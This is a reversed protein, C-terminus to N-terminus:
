TKKLYLTLITVSEDFRTLKGTTKSVQVENIDMEDKRVPIYQIYLPKFYQYGGSLRQYNVKRLLDTVQNGEM